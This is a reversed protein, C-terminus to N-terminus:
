IDFVHILTLQTCENFARLLCQIPNDGFTGPSGQFLSLPKGGLDTKLDRERLRASSVSASAPLGCLGFRGTPRLHCRLVSVRVIRSLRPGAPAPLRSPHLRCQSLAPREGVERDSPDCRISSVWGQRRRRLCEPWPPRCHLSVLTPRSRSSCGTYLLSSCRRPLCRGVRM